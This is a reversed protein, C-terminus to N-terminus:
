TIEVWGTAVPLFKRSQAPTVSASGEVSSGNGDLTITGSKSKFTVSRVADVLLPFLTTNDGTSCVFDDVVQVSYNASIEVITPTFAGAAGGGRTIPDKILNGVGM